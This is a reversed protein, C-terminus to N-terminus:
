SASVGTLWHDEGLLQSRLSVAKEALEAGAQYKGPKNNAIAESMWQDAQKLEQRSKADL